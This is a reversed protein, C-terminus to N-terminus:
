KEKTKKKNDQKENRSEEEITELELQVIWVTRCFVPIATSPSSRRRGPCPRKPRDRHMYMYTRLIVTAFPSSKKLCRVQIESITSRHSKGPM